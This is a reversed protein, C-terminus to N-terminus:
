LAVGNGGWTSQRPAEDQWRGENLWTSLHPIFQGGDKLWQPSARQVTVAQIMQAVLADDPKRKDFAKKAADKGVKRPYVTWLADFRPSNAVRPGVPGAPQQSTAKAVSIEERPTPTPTPTPTPLEVDASRENFTRQANASRANVSAQASAKAKAQKDQMRALEADCRTHRYGEPSETFFEGLIANITEAHDRMRILRAIESPEPLPRETRYYLDLMRRYALDEMPELHATHAAYDGLHFPYYNL